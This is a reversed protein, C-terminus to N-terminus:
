LYAPRKSSLFPLRWMSRSAPTFIWSRDAPILAPSMSFILPQVTQSRSWNQDYRHPSSSSRIILQIVALSGNLHHFQDDWPAPSLILAFTSTDNGLDKWWLYRQAVPDPGFDLPIPSTSSLIKGDKVIHVIVKDGFINHIFEWAMFEPSDFPKLGTLMDNPPAPILLISPGAPGLVIAVEGERKKSGAVMWTDSNSHFPFTHPHIIKGAEAEKFNFGPTGHSNWDPTMIEFHDNYFMARDRGFYRSVQEVFNDM